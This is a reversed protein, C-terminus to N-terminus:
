ARGYDSPVVAVPGADDVHAIRPKRYYYGLAAVSLAAVAVPGASFAFIEGPTWHKAYLMGALMPGAIGGLRGLGLAWGLGTSRLSQPYFVAALRICFGAIFVTVALWGVDPTFAGGVLWMAIAGVAYLCSLTLYPGIRDMALGLPAAGIVGAIMPLSTIWVVNAGSYKLDTLMKPLWSQMFYFEALNVSFVLWLMLTGVLRGQTFLSAVGPRVEVKELSRFTANGLDEMRPFLRRLENRIRADDNGSKQLSMLSEPLWLVLPFLLLVPAIAGCLMLSTWGYRPILEGSTFGALVFGLSFGLYVLLVSTSRVRAPTYECALSVASPAAAGLGIGTLVRLAILESVGSACVTLATFSAFAVISALLMRKHGVRASLPAVVLYGIMLGVLGASFISGLVNPALHWEKAIMPAAYSIAQTDFGDILMVLGCLFVILWQRAGLKQREIVDAVDFVEAKMKEGGSITKDIKM